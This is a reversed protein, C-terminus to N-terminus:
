KAGAAALAGGAPCTSGAVLRTEYGFTDAEPNGTVPGFYRKPGVICLVAPAYSTDVFGYTDKEADGTIRGVYQAGASPAAAAVAPPLAVTSFLLLLAASRPM